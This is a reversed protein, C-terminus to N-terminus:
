TGSIKLGEVFVTPSGLGGYFTLDNGVAKVNKLMEFINGSFIVGKFPRREGGKCVYGLAGLSFDGTIPNATHTGMLEEIIIGDQFTGALDDTGKEIFFGRSACKPPEKVGARVGNGTSPKGFKRGYYVDYLFGQFYGDRVLPNEQSPVGEGDFPFSGMGALGSDTINLRPSFCQKGLQEKLWTKNKFLNEALFSPAVVSLMECASGPTLLGDYVGTQLTKGDLFSVAKEAIRRGLPAPALDELCHSWSWDYWSVEERNAAVCFGGLTYITKRAEAHLGRSNFITANIEVEQLECNRTKVIRKDHGLISQELTIARSIKEHDDTQLGRDDYAQLVPYNAYQEPLSVHEDSEMFLVLTNANELLSAVGKEGKEYTYSFVMRDGKIARLALGEEEKLELGYLERESSEYKKTRERLVCVEYSDFFKRLERILYEKEVM